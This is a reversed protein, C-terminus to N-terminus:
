MWSGGYLAVDHVLGKGIEDASMDRLRDLTTKKAELKTIVEQSLRGFQKLPHEFAWLQHDVSKCLTLMKATM